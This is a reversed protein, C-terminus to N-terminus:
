KPAFKRSRGYRCLFTHLREVTIHLGETITQLRNVTKEKGRLHKAVKCRLWCFFTHCFVHALLLSQCLM